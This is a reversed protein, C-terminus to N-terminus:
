GVDEFTVPLPALGARANMAAETEPERDDSLDDRQMVPRDFGLARTGSLARREGYPQREEVARIREMEIPDDRAPDRHETFALVYL